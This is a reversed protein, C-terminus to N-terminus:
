RINLTCRYQLKYQPMYNSDNNDNPVLKIGHGEGFAVAPQCAEDNHDDDLLSAIKINENNWIKRNLKILNWQQWIYKAM